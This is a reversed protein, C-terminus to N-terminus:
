TKVTIVTTNDRGGSMDAFDVLYRTIEKASLEDVRVPRIIDEIEIGSCFLGDTCLLYIQGEKIDYRAIDMEFATECGMAKTIVNRKPHVKAEEASIENNKLLENVFTHDETLKTIEKDILYASSDGIHALIMYSKEFLMASLTTGLGQKDTESSSVILLKDNIAKSINAFERINSEPDNDFFRGNLFEDEYIEVAMRSAYEGANQGGIGDAVAFLYPYSGNKSVILFADENLERILGKTTAGFFTIM